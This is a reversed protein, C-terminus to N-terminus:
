SVMMGVVKLKSLIQQGTHCSTFESTVDRGATLGFHTAGAWGANNTVDYVIGNVAVYAPNGDKGNYRSLEDQTFERIDENYNINSNKDNQLGQVLMNLNSINRRLQNLLKNKTCFNSTVYLFDITNNMDNLNDNIMNIFIERNNM